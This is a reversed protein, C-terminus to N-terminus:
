IKEFNMLSALKLMRAPWNQGKPWINSVGTRAEKTSKQKRHNLPNHNNIISYPQSIVLKIGPTVMLNEQVEMNRTHTHSIEGPDRTEESWFCASIANSMLVRFQYTLRLPTKKQRYIHLGTIPQHVIWPKRDGRKWSQDFQQPLLETDLM